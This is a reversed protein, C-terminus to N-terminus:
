GRSTGEVRTTLAARLRAEPGLLARALPSHLPLPYSVSVTVDHGFHLRGPPSVDISPDGALGGAALVARIKAEVGPTRGADLAARRAGERAAATLVLRVQWGRALDTGSLLLMFLLAAVAAFEM